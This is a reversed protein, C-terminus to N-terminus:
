DRLITRDPGTHGQSLTTTFSIMDDTATSLLRSIRVMDQKAEEFSIMGDITEVSVMEM